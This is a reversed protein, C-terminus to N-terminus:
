DARGNAERRGGSRALHRSWSSTLPLSDVQSCSESEYLIYRYIFLFEGAHQKGCHVSRVVFEGAIRDFFRLRRPSPVDPQAAGTVRGHADDGLGLRGHRVLGWAFVARNTVSGFVKRPRGAFAAAAADAAANVAHPDQGAAEAEIRAVAAAKAAGAAGGTPDRGDGEEVLAVAFYTGAAIQLTRTRPVNLVTVLCPEARDRHDGLGLCGHRNSGWAYLAGADTVVYSASGMASTAISTVLLKQAVPAIPSGMPMPAFRAGFNAGPVVEGCLYLGPMAHRPDKARRAQGTLWKERKSLDRVIDSRGLAELTHRPGVAIDLVTRAMQGTRKPVLAQPESAGRGLGGTDSVGWSWVEHRRHSLMWLWWAHKALRIHHRDIIKDVNSIVEEIRAEIGGNPTAMKCRSSFRRAFCLLCLRPPPAHPLQLSSRKSRVLVSRFRVACKTCLM